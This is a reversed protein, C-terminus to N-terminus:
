TNERRAAPIEDSRLRRFKGQTAARRDIGDGVAVADHGLRALYAGDRQFKQLM